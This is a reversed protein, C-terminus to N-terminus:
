RHHHSDDDDTPQVNATCLNFRSGKPRSDHTMLWLAPMNGAEFVSGNQKRDSLKTITLLGDYSMPCRSVTSVPVITEKAQKARSSKVYLTCACDNLNVQIQAWFSHLFYFYELLFHADTTFSSTTQQREEDLMPTLLYRLCDCNLHYAWPLILLIWPMRNNNRWKQAAIM